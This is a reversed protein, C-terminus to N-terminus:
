LHEQGKQKEVGETRQDRRMNKLEKDRDNKDEAKM